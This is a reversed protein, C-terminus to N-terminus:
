IVFGSYLRSNPQETLGLVFILGIQISIKKGKNLESNEKFVSIWGNQLDLLFSIDGKKALRIEQINVRNCNKM